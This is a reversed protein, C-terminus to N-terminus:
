IAASDIVKSKATMIGAALLAVALVLHLYNDAVNYRALGLLNGEGATAGIHIFGIVALIFYVIAFIRLWSSSSGEGRTAAVLLIVGVVLHVANHAADTVFFGETGVIPNPIFGVIGVLVFVVGFLVALTKAM